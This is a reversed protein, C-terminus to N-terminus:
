QRHAHTHSLHTPWDHSRTRTHTGTVQMGSHDLVRAQKFDMIILSPDASPEFSIEFTNSSGFFVLGKVAYIKENENRMSSTVDISKAEEWAFSLASLVTGAVVAVALDKWVTIASTLVLVVCDIPHIKGFLRLSSWSFTQIAVVIMLGVLSAIPVSGLLPAASVIGVGLMLSMLVGALRNTGGANINIISQGVMACGGMGGTLGAFVNALGQAMCETRTSGQTGDDVLRDVLQLTLNNADSNKVECEEWVGDKFSVWGRSSETSFLAM